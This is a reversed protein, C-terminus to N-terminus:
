EFRPVPGQTRGAADHTATGHGAHCQCPSARKGTQGHEAQPPAPPGAEFEALVVRCEALNRATVM